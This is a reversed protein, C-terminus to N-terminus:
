TGEELPLARIAAAYDMGAADGAAGRRAGVAMGAGEVARACRERMEALAQTRVEVTWLDREAALEREAKEFRKQHAAASALWKASNQDALDARVKLARLEELVAKGADAALAARCQQILRVQCNCDENPPDSPDETEQECETWHEDDAHNYTLFEEAGNLAERLGAAQAELEAIHHDRAGVCEPCMVNDSFEDDCYGCVYSM